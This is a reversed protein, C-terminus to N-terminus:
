TWLWTVFTFELVAFPEASLLETVKHALELAMALEVYQMHLTIPQLLFANLNM